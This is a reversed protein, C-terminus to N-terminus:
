PVLSPHRQQQQQGNKLAPRPKQNMGFFPVKYYSALLGWLFIGFLLKAWGWDHSPQPIVGNTRPLPPPTPYKAADAAFAQQNEPTPSFKAPLSSLEDWVRANQWNGNGTGLDDTPRILDARIQEKIEAATYPGTIKCERCVYWIATM